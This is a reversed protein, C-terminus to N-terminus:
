PMQESSTKGLMVNFALVGDDIDTTRSYLCGACMTARTDVATTASKAFPLMLVITGALKRGALLTYVFEAYTSGKWVEKVEILTWATSASPCASLVADTGYPSQAVLTQAESLSLTIVDKTDHEFRSALPLSSLLQHCPDNGNGKLPLQPPLLSIQIEGHLM